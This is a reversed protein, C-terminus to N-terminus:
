FHYKLSFAVDGMALRFIRHGFLEFFPKYDVSFSLPISYIRYEVGIMGDAGVVPRTTPHAEQNNDLTLYWLLSQNRTFGIHLGAGYYLYFQDARPVHLPQMKLMMTTLQIGNDRFSMLFNADRDEQYFRHYTIGNSLGGRVGIANKMYQASITQCFLMLIIFLKIKM